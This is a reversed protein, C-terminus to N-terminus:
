HTPATMMNYYMTADRIQEQNFFGSGDTVSLLIKPILWNRIIKNTVKNDTYEFLKDNTTNNIAVIEPVEEDKEIDVVMIDAGGPGVFEQLGREFDDRDEQDAFKGKHVMLTKASFNNQLNTTTRIDSNIEAQLSEVIADCSALPYSHEDMSVYLLQGKYFDWGGVSEVQNAIADPSLNFAHFWTILDTRINSRKDRSWDNYTAFDFGTENKRGEASMRVHEFPIHFLETIKGAANVNIHLSFGRFRALDKKVLHLIKDMTQGETNVVSQYFTVDAFGSGGIFRGYTDICNRATPSSNTISYIRQPYANDEDYNVIGYTRNERQTIRQITERTNNTSIRM